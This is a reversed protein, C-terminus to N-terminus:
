TYRLNKHCGERGWPATWGDPQATTMKQRIQNYFCDADWSWLVVTRHPTPNPISLLWRLPCIVWSFPVILEDSPLHQAQFFQLHFPALFVFKSEKRKGSFWDSTCQKKRAKGLLRIHEISAGLKETYGECITLPPLQHAICWMADSWMARWEPLNNSFITKIDGRRRKGM